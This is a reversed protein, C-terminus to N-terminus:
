SPSIVPSVRYAGIKGNPDLRIQVLMAGKDFSAEYDYRGKDPDSTTAKLDHLAGLAHMKDSIQGISARTVSLKLASDFNATTRDYDADYVGHTASDAMVKPDPGNHACGAQGVALAITWAFLLFRNM